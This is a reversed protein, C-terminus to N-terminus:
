EFDYVVVDLDKEILQENIIKEIENWDGGALGYGIRPMHVTANVEIAKQAVLELGRKVAEYRIPPQGKTKRINRQGILNAVILDDEVKVFQVNGLQFDTQDKYWQRYQSEPSKWKKSIALVFGKGWAGIDNCIHVLIKNGQEIPNTADGKIYRIERAM